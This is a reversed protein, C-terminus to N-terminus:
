EERQPLFVPAVRGPEKKHRSREFRPPFTSPVEGAIVCKKAPSIWAGETNVIAPDFRLIGLM